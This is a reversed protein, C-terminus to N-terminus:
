RYLVIDGILLLQEDAALQSNLGAGVARATRVRGTRAKIALRVPVELEEWGTHRLSGVMAVGGTLDTLWGMLGTIHRYALNSGGQELLRDGIVSVGPRPERRYYWEKRRRM